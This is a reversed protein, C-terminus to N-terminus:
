YVWSKVSVGFIYIPGLMKTGRELGPVPGLGSKAGPSGPQCQLQPSQGRLEAAAAGSVPFDRTELPFDM